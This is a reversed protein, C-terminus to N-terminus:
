SVLFLLQRIKAHIIRKSKQPVLRKHIGFSFVRQIKLYSWHHLTFAPTSTNRRLSSQIMCILNTWSQLMSPRSYKNSWLMKRRHNRSFLFPHYSGSSSWWPHLLHVLRDMSSDRMMVRWPSSFRFAELFLISCILSILCSNWEGSVLISEAM